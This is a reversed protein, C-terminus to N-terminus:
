HKKNNNNNQMVLLGGGFEKFDALRSCSLVSCEDTQRQKENLWINSCILSSQLKLKRTKDLIYNEM